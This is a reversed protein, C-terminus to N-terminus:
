EFHLPGISSCIESLTLTTLVSQGTTMLQFGVGIQREGYINTEYTASLFIQM